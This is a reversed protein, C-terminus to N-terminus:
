PTLDHGGIPELKLVVTEGSFLDRAFYVEDLGTLRIYSLTYRCVYSLVITIVTKRGLRIARKSSCDDHFNDAELLSLSTSPICLDVGAPM